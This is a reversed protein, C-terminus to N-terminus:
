RFHSAHEVGRSNTRAPSFWEENGIEIPQPRTNRLRERPFRGSNIADFDVNLAHFNLSQLAHERSQLPVPRFKDDFKVLAYGALLKKADKIRGSIRPLPARYLIGCAFWFIEIIMTVCKRGSLFEGAPQTSRDSLM